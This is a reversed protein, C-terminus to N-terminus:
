YWEVSVVIDAAGATSGGDSSIEIPTDEDVSDDAGRVFNNIQSGVASATDQTITGYAAAAGSRGVSIVSDAGTAQTTVIMAVSTIRGRLGPAPTPIRDLIGGGAVAAAPFRYSLQLGNAYSM